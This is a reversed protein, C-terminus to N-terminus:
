RCERRNNAATLRRTLHQRGFWIVAALATDREERASNERAAASM